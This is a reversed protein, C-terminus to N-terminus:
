LSAGMSAPMCSQGDPKSLAEEVEPSMYNEDHKALVEDAAFVGQEDLQGYAVIGQGERFLDPLIGRYRVPVAADCDALTFQVLLGDDAWEVSGTEVLGGIRFRAGQPAEGAAVMSPQYFYMLNENFATLMLAVAGGIGLLLLGVLTLRRRRKPTM